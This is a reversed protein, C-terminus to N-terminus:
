SRTRGSIFLDRDLLHVGEISKVLVEGAGAQFERWNVATGDERMLEGDLRMPADTEIAAVETVLRDLDTDRGVDLLLDLDSRDTLYDLGTLARWALSGFARVEVSHRFALEDLRDLAAWWSRPALARLDNLLPPRAVSTVDDSQLLFCLRKKGASPPLPLGVAVGAAEGPMARRRITPWGKDSWPAVLPDAALAGRTALMARWGEPSVFVLDHRGIPREGPKCPWSV